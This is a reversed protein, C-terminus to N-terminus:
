CPDCFESFNYHKIIRETHSLTKRSQRRKDRVKDQENAIRAIRCQYCENKKKCQCM